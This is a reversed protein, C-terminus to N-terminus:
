NFIFTIPSLKETIYFGKYQGDNLNLKGKIVYYWEGKSINSMHLLYETESNFTDTPNSVTFKNVEKNGIMISPNDKSKNYTTEGVLCTFEGNKIECGCDGGSNIKGVCAWVIAGILLIIIAALVFWLSPSTSKIYHNLDEPNSVRDISKQRFIKEEM